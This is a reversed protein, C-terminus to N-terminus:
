TGTRAVSDARATDSGAPAAARPALSDVLRLIADSDFRGTWLRNGVMLTPTSGVGYREALDYSTVPDRAHIIPRSIRYAALEATGRDVPGTNRPATTKSTAVAIGWAILM